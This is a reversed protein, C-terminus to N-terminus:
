GAFDLSTRHAPHVATYKGLANGVEPGGGTGGDGCNGDTEYCPQGNNDCNGGTSQCTGGNGNCDQNDCGHPPPVPPPVPQASNSGWGGPRDVQVIGPVPTPAAVGPVAAMVPTAMAVAALAAKAFLRRTTCRYIANAM